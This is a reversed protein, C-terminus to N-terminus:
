YVSVFPEERFDSCDPAALCVPLAQFCKRLCFWLEPLSLNLVFHANYKDTVLETTSFYDGMVHSTRPEIGLM